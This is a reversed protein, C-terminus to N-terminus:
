FHRSDSIPLNFVVDYENMILITKRRGFNEKRSFKNQDRLLM